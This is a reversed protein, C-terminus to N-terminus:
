ALIILSCAWNTLFIESGFVLCLQALVPFQSTETGKFIRAGESMANLFQVELCIHGLVILCLKALAEMLFKVAGVTRSALKLVGCVMNM